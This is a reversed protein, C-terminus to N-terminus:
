KIVTMKNNIDAISNIKASANRVADNLRSSYIEKNDTDYKKIMDTYINIFEQILEVAVVTVKKSGAIAIVLDFAKKIKADMDDEQIYYKSTKSDLSVLRKMLAIVGDQDVKDDPLKDNLYAKMDTLNMKGIKYEIEQSEDVSKKKGLIKSFM